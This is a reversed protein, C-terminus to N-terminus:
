FSKQIWEPAINPVFYGSAPSLPTHTIYPSHMHVTHMDMCQQVTTLLVFTHLNYICQM